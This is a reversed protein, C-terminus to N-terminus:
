KGSKHPFRDHVPEFDGEGHVAFQGLCHGVHQRAKGGVAHRGLLGHAKVVGFVFARRDSRHGHAGVQRCVFFQVLRALFQFFRKEVEAHDLGQGGRDEGREGVLIPHFGPFDVVMGDWDPFFEDDNQGPHLRRICRVYRDLYVGAHGEAGAGVRGYLQAEFKDFLEKIRL